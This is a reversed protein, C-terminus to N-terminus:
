MAIFVPMGGSVVDGGQLKETVNMVEMHMFISWKSIVAGLALKIDTCRKL